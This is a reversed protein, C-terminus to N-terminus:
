FYTKALKIFKELSEMEDLDYANYREETYNWVHIGKNFWYDETAPVDEDYKNIWNIVTDNEDETLQKAVVIYIAKLPDTTKELSRDFIEVGSPLTNEIWLRRM